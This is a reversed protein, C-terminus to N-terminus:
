RRWPRNDGTYEKENEPCVLWGAESPITRHPEVEVGHDYEQKHESERKTESM